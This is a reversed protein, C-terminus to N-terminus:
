GSTQKSQKNALYDFIQRHIKNFYECAGVKCHIEPVTAFNVHVTLASWYFIIM